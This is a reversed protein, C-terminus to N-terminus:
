KLVYISHSGDQVSFEGFGDEDIITSEKVNGTIDYFTKGAFHTGIFMRKKGGHKDTILAALGSDDHYLDGERTWGVISEHDFYDHQAGYAYKKRVKLIIDLIEKMGKYESNNVGYYDGYFVCPYGDKRTLIFTYALPKFWEEVWSQLSQGIQTDHNDVFTCAMQPYESVMSRRVLNRMDFYGFSKSAEHFAFHLPVDFLGMCNNSKEMYYKLRGVDYGWYEGVAFMDAKKYKRMEGLWYDFFDFQIHKVADLRFGDINTEDILWKGYKVLEERVEKSNMDIDSFMLYDYNGNESDVDNAWEKDAFRFIGHKNNLEDYDVGTFDKASWKYDSYKNNRSEFNFVTHCRIDHAGSIVMNRNNQAVEVAKVLETDDAGAKHNFVIDAYVEINNKHASDIANIYEAKTGYKTRVTGKADFEGLDFLDYCGYGVDNIGNVGKGAPPLWVASIGKKSLNEAESCLKKYLTGDNSLNWEFFQMMTRNYEPKFEYSTKKSEAKPVKSSRYFQENNNIIIDKEHIVEHKEIKNIEEYTEKKDLIVTEEYKYLAENLDENKEEKRRTEEMDKKVSRKVLQAFIFIGIFIILILYKDDM